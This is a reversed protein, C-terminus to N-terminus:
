TASLIIRYKVPRFQVGADELVGLDKSRISKRIIEQGRKYSRHIEQLLGATSTVNAIRQTQIEYVSVSIQLKLENKVFTAQAENLELSVEQSGKQRFANLQQELKRMNKGSNGM